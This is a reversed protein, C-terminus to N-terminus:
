ETVSSFRRREPTGSQRRMTPLQRAGVDGAIIIKCNREQQKGYRTGKKEGHEELVTSISIYWEVPAAVLGHAAKKLKMIEGPSVKLAAALEPVPLVWLDRQLNRGQLFAGSVDGKAASFGIWAGFQLLLQRTNRTMTPSAAPRNECDPDLCGLIVIRAKPTKNENEDLRYELVWRMRVISERPPKEHPELKELVNNVVHNKIEKQKAPDFLKREELSMHREFVEKRGKRVVSIVFFMCTVAPKRSLTRALRWRLSFKWLQTM